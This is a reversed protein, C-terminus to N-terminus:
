LLFYLIVPLLLAGMGHNRGVNVIGPVIGIATSTMMVLIGIWGTFYFVLSAVFLIILICLGSYNVKTIIKSFIRTFFMTLFVGIAGAILSVAMILSFMSLNIQGLLKQVVVISGNRAKDITYLTILSLMMSVTGIAGILVIYMYERTKGVLGSGLIAAQAPGMGPFISVLTGSITGAFISKGLEGRPIELENSIKQEPIRVKQSLSTLLMSIGFMGSLMPFLPDKIDLSFTLIGLIGSIVFIFLAWFKGKVGKERSIMYFAVALLIIGIYNKLNNFIWPVGLILAPLMILVVLLGLFSGITALKVAEFGKGELLLRHTPMIAMATSEDPAGLFCGPIFDLFTHVISMSIIVSALIIPSFYHLLVPSIVLLLAAVLNIHIGPTIGTVIGFLSGVLIAAFIEIFM